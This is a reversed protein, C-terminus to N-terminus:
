SPDVRKRRMADKHANLRRRRSPRLPRIRTEERRSSLEKSSTSRGAPPGPAGRAPPRRHLRRPLALNFPTSVHFSSSTAAGSADPCCGYVPQVTDSAAFFTARRSEADTGLELRPDLLGGLQRLRRQTLETEGRDTLLQGRGQRTLRLANPETTRCRLSEELSEHVRRLRVLRELSCETRMLLLGLPSM